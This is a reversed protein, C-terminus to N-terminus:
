VRRPDVRRRVVDASQEFTVGIAERQSGHTREHVARAHVIRSADFLDLVLGGVIKLWPLKLLSVAFFTLIIRLIIAGIAGWFIGWRRQGAPLNRCALAIVVANDGSLLINIVIIELAAVWFHASGIEM